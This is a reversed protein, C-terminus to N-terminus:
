NHIISCCVAVFVSMIQRELVCMNVFSMVLFMSEIHLGNMFVIQWRTVECTTTTKLFSVLMISYLCQGVMMNAEATGLFIGVWGM